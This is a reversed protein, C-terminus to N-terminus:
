RRGGRVGMRTRDTMGGAIIQGVQVGSSQISPTVAIGLATLAGGDIWAEAASFESCFLRWRANTDDEDAGANRQSREADCAAGNNAYTDLITKAIGNPVVAAVAYGAGALWATLRASREVLWQEIQAAPPQNSPSQLYPSLALVGGVTGFTAM